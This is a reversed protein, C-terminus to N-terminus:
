TQDASSAVASEIWDALASVAADTAFLRGAAALLRERTARRRAPNAAYATALEVYHELSTAVTDEVEAQALMGSTMRSRFLAGPLTIVPCGLSLAMYTTVGGTFHPPDLVCDAAELLALFEEKPAFPRFLIRRADEGLTSAFRGELQEQWLPRTRDAFFMIRALPDRKLIAALATDFDPHIKQLMVPCLYYHIDEDLGLTARSRRTPATNRTVYVPIVPLRALQESYHAAAGSRDQHVNSVFWDVAPVGSSAPHGVLLAQLPALRAFSLLYPLVHLAVDTYILIDCGLAGITARAGALDAPIRIHAGHAIAAAALGADAEKADTILTVEFRRSEILLRFLDRYWLGVSHRGLHLSFVGLRIRRGPLAERRRAHMAVEALRPEIRLLLQAVKELWPREDFGLYALFFPPRRLGSLLDDMVPPNALMGELETEFWDRWAAIEAQSAAIQPVTLLLRNVALAGRESASACELAQDYWARCASVDGALYAQFGLMERPLMAEPVLLHALRLCPEAADPANRNLYERGRNLFSLAIQQRRDNARVVAFEREADGPEGQMYLEYGALASNLALELAASDTAPLDAAAFAWTRVTPAAPRGRLVGILRGLM